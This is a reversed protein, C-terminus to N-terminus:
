LNGRDELVDYKFIKFARYDENLCSYILVKEDFGFEFSSIRKNKIEKIIRKTKIEIILLDNNEMGDKDILVGVYEQCDSLSYSKCNGEFGREDIVLDIQDKKLYKNGQNNKNFKKILNLPDEKYFDLSDINSKTRYFQYMTDGTKVELYTYKESVSKVVRNKSLERLRILEKKMSEHEEKIQTQINLKNRIYYYHEQSIYNRTNKNKQDELIQLTKELDEPKKIQFISELNIKINKDTFKNKFSDFIKKIM